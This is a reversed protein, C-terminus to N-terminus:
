FGILGHQVIAQDVHAAPTRLGILQNGDLLGVLSVHLKGVDFSVHGINHVRYEFLREQHKFIIGGAFQLAVIAKLAIAFVQGIQDGITHADIVLNSQHFVFFIASDILCRTPKKPEFVKLRNM